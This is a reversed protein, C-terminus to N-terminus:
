SLVSARLHINIEVATVDCDNEVDEVPLLATLMSGLVNLFRIEAAKHRSMGSQRKQVSSLRSPEYWQM